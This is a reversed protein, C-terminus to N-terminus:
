FVLTLNSTEANQPQGVQTGVDKYLIWLPDLLPGSPTWFTDMSPGYPPWLPDYLTWLPAM